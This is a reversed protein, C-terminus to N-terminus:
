TKEITTYLILIDPVKLLIMGSSLLITIRLTYGYALVLDPRMRWFASPGLWPTTSSAPGPARSWLPFITGIATLTPSLTSNGSNPPVFTFSPSCYSNINLSVSMIPFSSHYWDMCIIKVFFIFLLQIFYWKM